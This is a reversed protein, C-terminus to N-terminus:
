GQSLLVIQLNDFVRSLRNAGSIMITKYSCQTVDAAEAKIGGLVQTGISIRSGEQGVIRRQSLRTAHDGFVAGPNPVMMLGQSDIAPEIRQLCGNQLDFEFMEFPPCFRANANSLGVSLGQATQTQNDRVAWGIRLM